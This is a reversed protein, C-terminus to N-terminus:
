ESPISGYRWCWNFLSCWFEVLVNCCVIETMVGDSRSASYAPSAEDGRENPVRKMVQKM